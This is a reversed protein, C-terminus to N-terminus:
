RGDDRVREAVGGEIGGAGPEVLADRIEDALAKLGSPFKANTDDWDGLAAQYGDDLQVVEIPFEARLDKLAHLNSRMAEETIGHFYHYWSCWGRQYPASIRARMTDGLMAAFRSAMLAAGDDSRWFALPELDREESSRLEVGDLLARAMVQNPTRVTITTLQHAADIFGALFRARSSESEVITFQESTAGEPADQPRSVESQHNVRAIRSLEDRRKVILYRHKFVFHAKDKLTPGRRKKAGKKRRGRKARVAEKGEGAHQQAALKEFGDTEEVLPEEHVELVGVQAETGAGRAPRQPLRHFAVVRGGQGDFQDTCWVGDSRLHSIHHLSDAAITTTLVRPTVYEVAALLAFAVTLIVFVALMLSKLNMFM